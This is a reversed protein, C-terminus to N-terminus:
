KAGGAAAARKRNLVLVNRNEPAFYKAAIRQIDAATVAQLLPPDTNITRWGRYADYVLLQEMLSFGSQLRRFNSATQENKVKQLERDPVIGTKLKELEKYLAQEVQEPTKGPKAVGM